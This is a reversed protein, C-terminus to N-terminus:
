GAKPKGRHRSEFQARQEELQKRQEPTLLEYIQHSTRAHLEGMEALDKASSESMAKVKAEDYDDSMSIHRLEMRTKRMADAKDRMVQVENKVLDEIKGKQEESLGLKQLYPPVPHRAGDFGAHHGRRGSHSRCDPSGDWGTNASVPLSVGLAISSAIMFRSITQYNM